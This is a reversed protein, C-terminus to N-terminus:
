LDFEIGISFNGLTDKAPGAETWTKGFAQTLKPVGADLATLGFAYDYGVRVSLPSDAFDKVLAVSADGFSDNGTDYAFRTELSAFGIDFEGSAGFHVTGSQTM